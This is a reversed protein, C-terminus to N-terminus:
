YIFFTFIFSHINQVCLSRFIYFIFFYKYFTKYLNYKQLLQLVPLNNDNFAQRVYYKDCQKNSQKFIYLINELIDLYNHKYCFDFLKRTNRMTTIIIVM